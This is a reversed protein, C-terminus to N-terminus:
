IRINIENKLTFHIILDNHLQENNTTMIRIGFTIIIIACCDFKNNKPHNTM